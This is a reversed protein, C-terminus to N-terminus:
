CTASFLTFNGSYDHIIGEVSQELAYGGAVAAFIIISMNFIWSPIGNRRLMLQAICPFILGTFTLGFGSVFGILDNLGPIFIAMLTCIILVLTPAFAAAVVTRWSKEHNLPDFALKKSAKGLLLRMAHASPVQAIMFTFFVDASLVGQIVRSYVNTPLIKTIIPNELVALGFIAYGVTGMAANFVWAFIYAGLM